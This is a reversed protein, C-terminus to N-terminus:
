GGLLTKKNSIGKIASSFMGFVGGRKKGIAAFTDGWKSFTSMFTGGTAPKPMSSKPSAGKVSSGGGTATNIKGGSLARAIKGFVMGFPDDGGRKNAIASVAGFVTSSLGM